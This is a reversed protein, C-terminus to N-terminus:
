EMDEPIFDLRGDPLRVLRGWRAGKDTEVVVRSAVTVPAPAEFSEQLRAVIEANMSRNNAAAADKLRDRMGEPFRVIYRDATQSPYAQEDEKAM